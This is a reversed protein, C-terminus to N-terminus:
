QSQLSNHHTNNIKDLIDNISDKSFKSSQIQKEILLIESKLMKAQPGYGGGKVKADLSERVKILNNKNETTAFDLENIVKNYYKIKFAKSTVVFVSDLKVKIKQSVITCSDMQSIIKYGSPGYDGRGKLGTLEQEFIMRLSDCNLNLKQLYNSLSDYLVDNGNLKSSNNNSKTENCSCALFISMFLTGITKIKNKM